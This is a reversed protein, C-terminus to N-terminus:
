RWIRKKKSKLKKTELLRKYKKDKELLEHFDEEYTGIVETYYYFAYNLRMKIVNEADPWREKLINLAYLYAYRSNQKIGEEAEPFRGKLVDRAYFYAILPDKAIVAEGKPFRACIISKAYQYCYKPSNMMIDHCYGLNFYELLKANSVKKSSIKSLLVEKTYKKDLDSDYKNSYLKWIQLDLVSPKKKFKNCIKLYESELKKYQKLTSPTTKPVDQLEHYEKLYKLLHTDLIAGQFNEQTYMCYFRSTKPGIGKIAEMSELNCKLVFSYGNDKYFEYLFKFIHELKNYQGTRHNKLTELLKDEEILKYIYEFPSLKDSKKILDRQFEIKRFEPDLLESVKQATVSAKKGAVMCCFIFFIELREIKNHSSMLDFTHGKVFTDIKNPNILLTTM